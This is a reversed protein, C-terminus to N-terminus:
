RRDRESGPRGRFRARAGSDGSVCGRPPRTDFFLRSSRYRSGSGATPGGRPPRCRSRPRGGAVGEVGGGQAAEAVHVVHLTVGGAVQPVQEDGPGVAVGLDRGEEGAPAVLLVPVALGDALDQAGVVLGGTPVPQRRRPAAHGAPVRELRHHEGEGRRHGPVDDGDVHRPARDVFPRGLGAVAAEGGLGVVRHQRLQQAPDHALFAPVDVEVAMPARCRRASLAM